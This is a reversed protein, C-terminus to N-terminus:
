LSCQTLQLLLNVFLSLFESIYEIWQITLFNSFQGAGHKLCSSMEAVVYSIVNFKVTEKFNGKLLNNCLYLFFESNLLKFLSGFKLRLKQIHSCFEVSIVIQSSKPCNTESSILNLMCYNGPYLHLRQNPGINKLMLCTPQLAGM